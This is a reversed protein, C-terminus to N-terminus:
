PTITQNSFFLGLNKAMKLRLLDYYQRVGYYQTRVDHILSFFLLTLLLLLLLPIYWLLFCCYFFFLLLNNTITTCHLENTRVLLPNLFLEYCSVTLSHQLMEYKYFRKLLYWLLVLVLRLAKCTAPYREYFYTCPKILM